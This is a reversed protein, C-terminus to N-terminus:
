ISIRATTGEGPTSELTVTGGHREVIQRVLSLGIGVGGTGKTRSRDTRFFPEFVRALDEPAIGIGRDVVEIVVAAGETRAVLRVAEGYKAANDLLNDIARRFLVPDLERTPLDPPVEVTLEGRHRTRFGDAARELLESMGVARRRLPPAATGDGVLSLRAATLVDGVLQELEHLDEVLGALEPPPSPLEALLDTAVRLRALPTRLEHSVNALLERESRLLAQVRDAMEDFRLGLEGFEDPGRLGTRADLTGAGFSRAAATLRGLPRRILAHVAFAGGITVGLVWGLSLILALPSRDRPAPLYHLETRTGDALTLPVRAGPSRRHEGLEVRWGLTREIRAIEVDPDAATSLLDVILALEPERPQDRELRDITGWGVAVALFQLLALAWIRVAVHRLRDSAPTSM